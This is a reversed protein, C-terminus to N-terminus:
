SLGVERRHRWIATKNRESVHVLGGKGPTMDIGPEKKSREGATNATTAL